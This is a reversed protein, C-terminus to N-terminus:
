SSKPPSKPADASKNEIYAACAVLAMLAICIGGAIDQYWAQGGFRGGPLFGNDSELYRRLGRVATTAGIGFFLFLLPFTRYEKKRM